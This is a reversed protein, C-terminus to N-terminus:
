SRRVCILSPVADHQLTEVPLIVLGPRGNVAQLHATALEFVVAAPGGDFPFDESQQLSGGLLEMQTRFFADPKAGRRRFLLCQGASQADRCDAPLRMKEE